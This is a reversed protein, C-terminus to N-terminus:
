EFPHVFKTTRDTAMFTGEGAGLRRVTRQDAADIACTLADGDQWGGAFGTRMWEHHGVMAGDHGGALDQEAARGTGRCRFRVVDPPQGDGARDRVEGFEVVPAVVWQPRM